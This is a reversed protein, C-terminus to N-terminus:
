IISFFEDGQVGEMVSTADISQHINTLLRAISNGCAGQPLFARM